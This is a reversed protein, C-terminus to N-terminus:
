AVAESDASSEIDTSHDARPLLRDDVLGQAHRRAGALRRDKQEKADPEKALAHHYEEVPPQAIDHVQEPGTSLLCRLRCDRTGPCHLRQAQNSSRSPERSRM